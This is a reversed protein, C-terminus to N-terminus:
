FAHYLAYQRAPDARNMASKSKFDFILNIKRQRFNELVTKLCKQEWVAEWICTSSAECVTTIEDSRKARLLTQLYARSNM